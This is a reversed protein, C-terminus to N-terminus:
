ERIMCAVLGDEPDFILKHFVKTFKDGNKKAFPPYVKGMLYSILQVNEAGAKLYQAIHKGSYVGGTASIPFDPFEKKMCRIQTLNREHLQKGGHTCNLEKNFMRNAIVIGDAKGQVTAKAMEMQFSLGYDLNLLKAYVTIESSVSKMLQPVTEYWRLTSEKKVLDTETELWPCFDIEFIRYGIDFLTKTTYIWEKEKFSERVQPCHCLISAAVLFDTDDFNKAQVAFPVYESLTRIDGRGNWHIIPYAKQLDDKDYVSEIYTSKQRQSLMSCNGHSDEGVFSKLICGAFGASKIKRLQGANLTLQGPAVLVPNKIIRPGYVSSLSIGLENEILEFINLPIPNTLFFDHLDRIKQLKGSM